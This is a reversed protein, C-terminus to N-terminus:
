TAIGHQVLHIGSTMGYKEFRRPQVLASGCRQSGIYGLDGIISFGVIKQFQPYFILLIMECCIRNEANPHQSKRAPEPM